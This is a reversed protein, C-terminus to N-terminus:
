LLPFFSLFGSFCPFALIIILLVSFAGASDHAIPREKTSDRQSNALSGALLLTLCGSWCPPPCSCTQLLLWCLLPCCLSCLSHCQTSKPPATGQSLNPVPQYLIKLNQATTMDVEHLENAPKGSTDFIKSTGQKTNDLTLFKAAWEPTDDILGRSTDAILM